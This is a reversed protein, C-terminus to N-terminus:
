ISVNEHFKATVSALDFSYISSDTVTV